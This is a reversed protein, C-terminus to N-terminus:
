INELRVLKNYKKNLKLFFLPIGRTLGLHVLRMKKTALTPLIEHLM